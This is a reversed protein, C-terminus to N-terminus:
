ESDRGHRVDGTPPQGDDPAVLGLRERKACPSTHRRVLAFSTLEGPDAPEMSTLKVTGELARECCTNVTLGLIKVMRPPVDNRVM